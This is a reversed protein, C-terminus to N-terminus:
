HAFIRHVGDVSEPGYAVAGVSVRGGLAELIRAAGRTLETGSRETRAHM